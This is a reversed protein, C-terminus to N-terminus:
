ACNSTTSLTAISSLPRQRRTVTVSTVISKHDSLQLRDVFVTNQPRKLWQRELFTLV